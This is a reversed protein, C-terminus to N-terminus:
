SDRGGRADSGEDDERSEGRFRPDGWFEQGVGQGEGGDVEGGRQRLALLGLHTIEGLLARELLKRELALLLLERLQARQELLLLLGELLLIPVRARAILADVQRGHSARRRDRLDAALHGAGDLAPLVPQLLGQCDM